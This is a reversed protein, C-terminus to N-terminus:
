VEALRPFSYVVDSGRYVDITGITDHTWGTRAALAARDPALAEFARHIAAVAVNRGAPQIAMAIRWKLAHFGAIAGGALAAAVDDLTEPVDPVVFLRLILRGDDVLARGLSAAVARYGDPFGVCTLAGDGVAVDISGAPVPLASWEGRIATGAGRPFVADIMPQSRDVAVLSRWPLAALEPTVGLLLGRPAGWSRTTWGTIEAAVEALDEACPRLPAGIRAWQRAHLPWHDM